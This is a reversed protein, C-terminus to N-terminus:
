LIIFWISYPLMGKPLPYDEWAGFPVLRKPTNGWYGGACTDPINPYFVDLLLKIAPCYAGVYDELM